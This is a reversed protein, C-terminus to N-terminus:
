DLRTGGIPPIGRIQSGARNTNLAAQLRVDATYSTGCSKRTTQTQKLRADSLTWEESKSEIFKGGSRGNNEGGSQPGLPLPGSEATSTGARPLRPTPISSRKHEQGTGCEEKQQWREERPEKHINAINLPLSNWHSVSLFHCQDSRPERSFCQSGPSGRSQWQVGQEQCVHPKTM